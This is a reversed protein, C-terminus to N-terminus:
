ELASQVEALRVGLAKQETIDRAIKSAGVVAGSGDYIPSVGLSVDVRRGGKAVRVTDYPHIREGRRVQDLILEDEFELETPFLVIIPQGIMESASYGFIEEAARNWTTVKGDLTEGIVADQSSDVISALLQHEGRATESPSSRM